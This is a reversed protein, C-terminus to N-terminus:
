AEPTPYALTNCGIIYLENRTNSIHYVGEMNFYVSVGFSSGNVGGSSDYCQSTVPLKVTAELRPTV